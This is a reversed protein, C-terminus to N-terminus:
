SLTHATIWSAIDEDMTPLYLWTLDDSPQEYQSHDGNGQELVLRQSKSLRKKNTEDTMKLIADIRPQRLNWWFDLTKNLSTPGHLSSLLVALTSADELAQNVGQGSSPPMAHAADGILIVRGASSAWRPLKPMRYFPWLLLGEKRTSLLEMLSKAPLGWREYDKCMLAYLKDKDEALANWGARDLAPHPFQRGVMLDSGDHLEPIMFLAGPDDQITCSKEAEEILWPVRDTPLHGYICILGMYDPVASTLHKRVTSHIGDAGILLSARETRGSVLFTVSDEAEEIVKEFKVDYEVRVSCEKLVARLEQKLAQRYIRLGKYGYLREMALNTTNVTTGEADKLVHYETQYSQTAVRPLIGLRDLVRCGNPGLTM